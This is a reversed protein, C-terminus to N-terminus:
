RVEPVSMNLDQLIAEEDVTLLKKDACLPWRDCVEFQEGWDTKDSCDIWCCGYRAVYQLLHHALDLRIRVVEAPDLHHGFLQCCVDFLAFWTRESAQLDCIEILKDLYLIEKRM